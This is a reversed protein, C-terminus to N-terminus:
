GVGELKEIHAGIQMETGFKRIMLMKKDAEEELDQFALNASRVQKESAIVVQSSPVEVILEHSRKRDGRDREATLEWLRIKIKDRSTM